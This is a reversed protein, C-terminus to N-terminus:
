VGPLHTFLVVRGMFQTVVITVLLLVKTACFFLQVIIFPGLSDGTFISATATTLMPKIAM